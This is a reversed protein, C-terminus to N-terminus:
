TDIKAVLYSRAYSLPNLGDKSNRSHVFSEYIISCHVYYCYEPASLQIVKQFTICYSENQKRELKSTDNKMWSTLILVEPIWSM